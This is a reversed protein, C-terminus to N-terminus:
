TNWGNTKMFIIIELDKNELFCSICYAIPNVQSDPLWKLSCITPIM